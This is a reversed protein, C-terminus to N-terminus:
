GVTGLGIIEALLEMSRLFAGTENRWPVALMHQVGAEAFAHHERAIQEPDMGQPDWGTRLSITFEPEPRDRRLVEVMEGAQEPTLGIAHFGDGRTVARRRAHEVSGGIWIPIRHAPKPLVRLDDFRYHEGAFSSPDSDWCVRLVDIIEDTRAGRNEFSQGLARFEAESWGVGLAPTLRGDSLADLSALSKALWLPNHQPAVLVSTGLRIRLTAAAAWTLAVIPDYIYKTPPYEQAAPIIVHDSVWVDAFGLEEALRAADRIAEPGSARGTQPLHIGVKV